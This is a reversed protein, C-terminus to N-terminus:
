TSPLAEPEHGAVYSYGDPCLGSGNALRVPPSSGATLTISAAAAGSILLLAVVVSALVRPRRLLHRRAGLNREGMAEADLEYLSIFEGPDSIWM